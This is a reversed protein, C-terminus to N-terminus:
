FFDREGEVVESLVKDVVMDVILRNLLIVELFPGTNAKKLFLSSGSM